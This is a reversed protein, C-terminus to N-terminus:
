AIKGGHRYPRTINYRMKVRLYHEPDLNHHAFWHLIRIMLDAYEIAMGEPKAMAVTATENEVRTPQTAYVHDPAHGKRHEEYAESIETHALAAWEAQDREENWGKVEAWQNIFISWQTPTLENTDRLTLLLRGLIERGQEETM